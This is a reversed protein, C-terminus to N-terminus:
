EILELYKELVQSSEYPGDGDVDLQPEDFIVWYTTLIGDRGQV